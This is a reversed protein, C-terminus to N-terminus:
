VIDDRSEVKIYENGNWFAARISNENKLELIFDELTKVKYPLYTVYKAINMRVHADSVGITKLGCEKCIDYARLNSRKDTSGNLVEVGGLKKFERISDELGRNNNRYPHCSVTFGGLSDVLDVFDFADCKLRFQHKYLDKAWATIDGHDTFMEIGLFIPIDYKKSYEDRYPYFDMNDHDTICIADLGKRKAEIIIDDVSILSDKSFLKEHLHMDILM